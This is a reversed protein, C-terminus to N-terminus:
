QVARAAEVRLTFPQFAAGCNPCSLTQESINYRCERCPKM